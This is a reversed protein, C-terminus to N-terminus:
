QSIELTVNHKLTQMQPSWTTLSIENEGEELKLPVSFKGSADATAIKEDANAYILITANAPASGSVTIPSTTTSSNDEPKDFSLLSVPSTKNQTNSIQQTKQSPTTLSKPLFKNGLFYASALIAGVILGITITILKEKDM